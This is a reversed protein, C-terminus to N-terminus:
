AHSLQPLRQNVHGCRTLVLDGRRRFPRQSHLDDRALRVQIHMGDDVPVPADRRLRLGGDAQRTGEDDEESSGMVYGFGPKGKPLDRLNFGDGEDLIQGGARNNTRLGIGKRVNAIGPKANLRNRIKGLGWPTDAQRVRAAGACTDHGSM